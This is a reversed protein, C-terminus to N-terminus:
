PRPQLGGRLTPRRSPHWSSAASLSAPVPARGHSLDSSAPSVRVPRGPQSPRVDGRAEAAARPRPRPRLALGCPRRSLDSFGKGPGPARHPNRARPGPKGRAHRGRLTRERSAGAGERPPAREGRAAASPRRQCRDLSREPRSNPSSPSLPNPAAKEASKPCGRADGPM